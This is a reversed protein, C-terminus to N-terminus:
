KDTKGSNSMKMMSKQVVRMTQSLTVGGDICQYGSGEDISQKKEEAPGFDITEALGSFDVKVWDGSSSKSATKIDALAATVMATKADMDMDKSPGEGANEKAKSDHLTGSAKKAERSSTSFLSRVDDFGMKTMAMADASNKATELGRQNLMLQKSKEGRSKWRKHLSSSLEEENIVIGSSTLVKIEEEVEAELKKLSMEERSGYIIIKVLGKADALPVYQGGTVHAVALYFDKYPSVSPECGVVYLSVGKGALLKAIEMPDLGEPCGDPFSDSCDETALGHPPADTVFVCMKTAEERWSLNLVDNLADAVAEPTDGGGDAECERLWLKMTDASDTFDHKRTIFTKDQPPHDRYEVLALRVQCKESEVVETVIAEINNRAETIYSGMSGTCDMAFALDLVNAM